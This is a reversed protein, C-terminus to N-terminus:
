SHRIREVCRKSHQKAAAIAVETPISTTGTKRRTTRRAWSVMMSRVIFRGSRLAFQQKEDDSPAACPVLLFLGLIVIGIPKM